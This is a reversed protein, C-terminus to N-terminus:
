GPSGPGSASAVAEPLVEYHNATGGALRGAHRTAVPTRVNGGTAAAIAAWGTWVSVTVFETPGGVGLYLAIPGVGADVDALTGARVDDVYEDLLGPHTRGRFVRLIGPTGPVGDPVAVHIPLVEVTPEEVAVALDVDLGGSGNPAGLGDVLAEHSAWVSVMVREGSEDPGRRGLYLRELGHLSALRPAISERLTADLVSGPGQPRFRFLRLVSGDL